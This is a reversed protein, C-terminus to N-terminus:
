AGSDFVADCPDTARMDKTSDVADNVTNKHHSMALDWTVYMVAVAILPRGDVFPATM